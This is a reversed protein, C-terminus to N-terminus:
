YRCLGIQFALIAIGRLFDLSHLGETQQTPELKSNIQFELNM